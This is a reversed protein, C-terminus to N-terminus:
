HEKPNFQGLPSPFSIAGEPIFYNSGGLQHQAVGGMVQVNWPNITPSSHPLGAASMAKSTRQACNDPALQLPKGKFATIAKLAAADQASTTKIVTVISNRYASQSALYATISSGWGTNTGFSFVGHGTIAIATHGIPNGDTPGGNIVAIDLGRPDIYGIPNGAVYAYTNIGAALGIPDSQLYRGTSPDYDRFYNYYNGSEIDFYQGPFGLNYDGITNTNVTRDFAYNSARWVTGKTQNTIREARGLHDNHVYYRTNNKILAIVQGNLVIYEKQVTGTSSHEAILQGQENYLYHTTGNLGSKKVRQGLANHLYNTTQGSKSYSTLRNQANYGFSAGEKSTIQGNGNYSITNQSGNTTVKTLRNSNGSYSLSESLGSATHTKRNGVQDYSYTHNGSSSTVNKLRNETDYTFNQTLSSVQNNTVKSINNQNDYLYNLDQIGSSVIQTPRYDLDHNITRVAGNGHTMRKLPGFPKYQLGTAINQTSSSTSAQYTVGSIEGISNYSYNVIHGSPYTVKTIQNMKNYAYKTTYYRSDIKSRKQTINGVKDYYFLTQGSADNVYYLRGKRYTGSDYTYTKTSSGYTETKIRELADYSYSSETGDALTKSLMQGSQNYTYNTTGTDPSILAVLDGFGSYHYETKFGRPDTVQNIRGTSDYGYATIGGDNATSRILQNLGNYTMSTTNGAADTISTVNSNNDYGYTTSQSNNGLSQHLRGMSDYDTYQAFYDVETVTFIPACPPELGPDPEIVRDISADSSPSLSLLDEGCGPPLTSTITQEAIISATLDSNVNHGYRKIDGDRNKIKILRDALDYTYTLTNGDPFTVINLLGSGNYLYQTTQTESSNLVSRSLVKGSADYTLNTQLDNPDTIRGVNGLTDYLSFTTIQGLPNTLKTLNGQSDFDYVTIDSVDTRPGDVTRKTVIGKNNTVYSYTAQRTEGSTGYSSLNTESVSALRGQSTYVYDVQNDATSIQVIRNEGALWQYQSVRAEPTDAAETKQILQGKANYDYDVVNGKWDTKRDVFGEFDYTIQRSAASCYTGEARDVRMLIKRGRLLGYHYTSAHGMPNTVTTTGSTYDFTFSEVDGRHYTSAGRGNAHYTFYAFDNNNVRIKTLAGPFRSDEYYYYKRTLPTGPQFASSLYGASNYGYDFSNGASDTITTLQGGTRIFNLVRGSSHTVKTLLNGSYSFQHYIGTPKTRQLIKGDSHYREVIESETTLVWENGVENLEQVSDTKYDVWSNDDGQQKFLVKKGDPRVASIESYQHYVIESVDCEPDPLGGGSVDCGPNYNPDDSSLTFSLQHGYNTIWKEGFLGEGVWAKNYTRSITLPFGGKGIYDTEFQMKNGSEVMIPNGCSESESGLGDAPNSTSSTGGSGSFEENTPRRGFDARGWVPTPQDIRQGVIIIDPPYFCGGGGTYQDCDDAKASSFGWSYQNSFITSVYGFDPEDEIFDTQKDEQVTVNSLMLVATLAVKTKKFEM